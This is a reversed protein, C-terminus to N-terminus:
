QNLDRQPMRVLREASREKRESHKSGQTGLERDKLVLMWALLISSSVFAAVLMLWSEPAHGLARFALIVGLMFPGGVISGLLIAALFRNLTALLIEKVDAMPM